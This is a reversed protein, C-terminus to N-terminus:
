NVTVQYTGSEPNLTIVRNGSYGKIIISKLYGCTDDKFLMNVDEGKSAGGNDGLYNNVDAQTVASLQIPRFSGTARDYTIILSGRDSLKQEGSVNGQNDCTTYLINLSAPAIKESSDKTDSSSNKGHNIYYTIYYGDSKYSLEMEGVLRNMAQTKTQDLAAKISNSARQERFGLISNLSPILIGLLVSFIAIVIVLEVLTFGRNKKKM